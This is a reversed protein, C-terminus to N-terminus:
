RHTVNQLAHVIRQFECGRHAYDKFMDFSACGPSLLVCGGKPANKAAHKVAQELSSFIRVSIDSDLENKIKEAAQGIACILKVKGGFADKWPAYPAGKDVGGAILVVDGEMSEVARVVADINTGKSDDYYRVGGIEGVFQLRHAPKHFSEFANVFQSDSVGMERCLVYAALMNELDISVKGRLPEPVAFALAGDVWVNQMDTYVACDATYGYARPRHPELAPRYQELTGGGVFLRGAAKVNQGLKIKAQAYSALSSYRDLHDPTINLIIGADVFPTRLTELQFSSLEVVAIGHPDGHAAIEDVAGTLPAGVNGLAWAQKGSRNLIHAVLLTVTTKGNTGTIAVCPQTLWRCALEVEGVVEIGRELAGAYYPHSPPVGPSAVVFDIAGGVSWRSSDEVVELGGCKLGAIGEDSQLRAQNDEVAFVHAGRRLLFRAASQGSLGLGLVLVKKGDLHGM